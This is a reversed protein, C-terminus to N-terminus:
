VSFLRAFVQRAEARERPHVYDILYAGILDQEDYGLINRTSPGVFHFRLDSDLLALGSWSKEVITRFRRERRQLELQARKRESIDHLFGTFTRDDEGGFPDITVEMPFEEGNARCALIEMRRGDSSRAPRTLMRQFLRHVREPFIARPLPRGIVERASLGFTAEAQPNWELVSGHRDVTIVADLTSAILAKLRSESRRLLQEARGRALAAGVINATSQLFAIEYEEFRRSEQAYVLLVGFPGHQTRIVIGAGSRIGHYDRLHTSKFRTEDYLNDFTVPADAVFTVMGISDNEEEDHECRVFTDNTGMAARVVMRGGPTVELARCHGVELTLEVLACAQGLLIYPDVGTLAAQGLEAVAVEQRHRAAIEARLRAVEAAGASDPAAGGGPIAHLPKREPM